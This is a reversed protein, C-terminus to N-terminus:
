STQEVLKVIEELYKNAKAIQALVYDDIEKTSLIRSGIRKECDEIALELTRIREQVKEM